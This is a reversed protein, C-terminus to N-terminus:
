AEGKVEPKGGNGEELSQAAQGPVEEGKEALPAVGIVRDTEGMDILKVGQTNRGITRISSLKLRLIKGEATMLMLEDEDAVQLVAVANGNRPTTKISIIGMGGRGQSRYEELGTRKGYGHETVTLITTNAADEVVEMGIVENGKELLIGRVGRGIRGIPRAESEPFRICIGKKTGILIEQGGNSLRAAILKDGADLALAIIGGARPNSYAQLPTKKIVGNKTAMVIYKEDKFQAVSLVATIKEESGVQLLNVIAKGKAARGAEPIQHVKQWYVRGADTFFLLYDHTSAVFLHEVFDEEKTGMGIKGKGGRRQSRYLSAPNRKIYGSHSITIVMDEPAIMDELHIEATEPIIETRRPDQYKEKIEILEDQVIKKVLAESNLVSNLYEIRKITEQYDTILKEREMGTLRQLKMDLIAQAQIQSLGFRNMLGDRAEEPSRSRKILAIVEDLHEVALKLGELIHAKEEAQRLEFRTRRVVVERRHEIFHYLLDRLGLVQPQNNVLALMIVGFTMQTQTHNYLQNLVVAAIEGRKLELVIRMGERDSEDRIDSIGEIRHDQVLEAIKEILRAKNVQYPLETVIISERETRPAVEIRARARLTLIGRGTRYAEQIGQFGYIFGATPFDPGKIVEMLAELSVDPDEIMKLLADVVEALNHPPINTAMGVAIGSSGNILLNPVRSPLVLPELRSEDYNPVFDVTEKDIDALLEASLPTLRAETYRMAAPPDGDISGFNGQGDVLPYRTNFDQAMRVLTDYIAADGHPHYNGMIEGVLKAAKRYPRNPLLGMEQMGYLIRRHVPKLGDRVDPLARGVIVSMAYDLYASKMEDEIMVQVRQEDPM